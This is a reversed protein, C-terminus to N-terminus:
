VIDSISTSVVVSNPISAPDFLRGNWCFIGVPIVRIVLKRLLPEWTVIFADRKVHGLCTADEGNAMIQESLDSGVSLPFFSKKGEYRLRAKSIDRM